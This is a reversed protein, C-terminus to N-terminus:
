WSWENKKGGKMKNYIYMLEGIQKPSRKTRLYFMEEVDKNSMKADLYQLLKKVDNENYKKRFVNYKIQYRLNPFKKKILYVVWGVFGAILSIGLVFIGLGKFFVIAEM